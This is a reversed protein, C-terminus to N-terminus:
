DTLYCFNNRWWMCTVDNVIARHQQVLRTWVVSIRGHEPFLRHSALENGFHHMTSHHNILSNSRQKPFAGWSLETWITNSCDLQHFRQFNLTGLCTLPSLPLSGFSWRHCFQLFFGQSFGPETTPGTRRQGSSGANWNWAASFDSQASSEDPEWPRTGIAM